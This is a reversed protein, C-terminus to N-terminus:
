SIKELASVKSEVNLSRVRCGSLDFGSDKRIKYEKYLVFSTRRCGLFSSASNVSSVVSYVSSVRELTKDCRWVFAILVRSSQHLFHVIATWGVDIEASEVRQCRGSRAAQGYCLGFRAYTWNESIDCYDESICREPRCVIAARTLSGDLRYKSDTM